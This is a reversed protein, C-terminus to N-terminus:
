PKYCLLDELTWRHETLGVSMAPTRLLWRRNSDLAARVRLGRHPKVFNDHADIFDLAHQLERRTKSVGLTKRALRRLAQRLPLLIALFRRNTLKSIFVQTADHSFHALFLGPLKRFLKRFQSANERLRACAYRDGVNGRKAYLTAGVINLTKDVPMHELAIPVRRQVVAITDDSIEIPIARAISMPMGSVLNTLPERIRSELDHGEILAVGSNANSPVLSSRAYAQPWDSSDFAWWVHSSSANRQNSLIFISTVPALPKM